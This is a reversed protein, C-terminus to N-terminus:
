KLLGRAILSVATRSRGIKRGIEGYSLGQYLLAKIQDIEADTLPVRPKRGSGIRGAAKPKPQKANLYNLKERLLRNNEELVELYKKVPVGGNVAAPQTKATLANTAQVRASAQQAATLVHKAWRRFEKALPQKSFMGILNVGTQFFVLSKQKGGKRFSPAIQARLFDKGEEFEDIHRNFIERIRRSPSGYNLGKGVMEATFARRGDIVLVELQKGNFVALEKNVQM